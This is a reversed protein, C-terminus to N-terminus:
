VDLICTNSSNQVSHLMMNSIMNTANGQGCPYRNGGRFICWFIYIRRSYRYRYIPLLHAPTGRRDRDAAIFNTICQATDHLYFDKSQTMFQYINTCYNTCNCRAVEERGGERRGSLKERVFVNSPSILVILVIAAMRYM